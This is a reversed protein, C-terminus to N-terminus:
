IHFNYKCVTQMYTQLIALHVVHTLWLPKSDAAFVFASLSLMLFSLSFCKLSWFYTLLYLAFQGCTLQNTSTYNYINAM